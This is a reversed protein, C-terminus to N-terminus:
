TESSSGDDEPDLLMGMMECSVCEMDVSGCGRLSEKSGPAKDTSSKGCRTGKRNKEWLLSAIPDPLGEHLLVEGLTRPM